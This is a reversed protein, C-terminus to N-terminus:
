SCREATLMAALLDKTAEPSQTATDLLAKVGLPLDLTERVYKATTESLAGYHSCLAAVHARAAWRMVQPTIKEPTHCDATLYFRLFLGPPASPFTTFTEQATAWHAEPNGEGLRMRLSACACLRWAFPGDKDVEELQAVATLAEDAV